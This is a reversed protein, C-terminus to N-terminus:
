SRNSAVIEVGPEVRLVGNRWSLPPRHPFARILRAYTGTQLPKLDAPLPDTHPPNLAEWLRAAAVQGDQQLRAFQELLERQREAGSWRETACGYTVYVRDPHVDIRMPPQSTWSTEPTGQVPGWQLDTELGALTVKTTDPDLLATVEGDEEVAWGLRDFRIVVGPERFSVEKLLQPNLTIDHPPLALRYPDRSLVPQQSPLMVDVVRLKLSEGIEFTAGPHLRGPRPVPSFVLATHPQRDLRLPERLALLVLCPEGGLERLSLAAAFESLQSADVRLAARHSRGILDGPFLDYVRGPADTLTLRATMATM